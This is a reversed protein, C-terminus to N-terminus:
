AEVGSPLRGEAVARQGAETLSFSTRTEVLGHTEAEFADLVAQENLQYVLESDEIWGGMSDLKRLVDIM